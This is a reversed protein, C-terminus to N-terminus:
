GARELAGALYDARCQSRRVKGSSTRPLSGPRILVVDSVPLGYAASVSARMSGIVDDWEPHRRLWERKLEFVVVLRRNDADDVDFAAGSAQRLAVHSQECENEIDQPAYKRGNVVILDKLRGSVYLQGDQVFGLDGTRLYEGESGEIRARFVRETVEPRMWYGQAVSSGRVWIEGVTGEPVRRRAEPDVIEVRTDRRPKGCGVVNSSEQRHVKYQVGCQTGTIFLTSEAMGYCPYFAEGRFGHEAFREAFRQVTDSRIPEAGSFAVRWSSLDVSEIQEPKIARAALDYMFNPGGSVTVGYRSIIQLWREPYQVFESPSLFGATCGSYMLQLVGGVLGMDHFLPLATFLVSDGDIEMAEQIAACNHVLNGHSVVVGKPDGTSGSTYQLFAPASLQPFAPQWSEALAQLESKEFFERLDLKTMSGNAGDLEVDVLEDADFLIGSALADGVIVQLRAQMIQRRPPATPVAVVGALLCAYFAIVFTKQSKCILLVRSDRLGLADMHAALIKARAYLEGFTLDEPQLLAGKFFRCAIKNPTSQARSVMLEAFSSM